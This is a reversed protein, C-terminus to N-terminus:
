LSTTIQNKKKIVLFHRNQIRFNCNVTKYDPLANVEFVGEAIIEDRTSMLCRFPPSVGHKYTFYAVQIAFIMSTVFSSHGVDCRHLHKLGLRRMDLLHSGM